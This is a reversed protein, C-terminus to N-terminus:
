CRCRLAAPDALYRHGPDESRARIGRLFEDNVHHRNIGEVIEAERAWLCVERGAHRMTQALATGWAGGGVIGVSDIKM